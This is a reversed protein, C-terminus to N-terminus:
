WGRTTSRSWSAPTSSPRTSRTCPTPSPSCISRTPRTTAREHQRGEVNSPSIAPLFAEVCTRARGARGQPQRHRAAGAGARRLTVPGTCVFSRAAANPGQRVSPAYFEPFARVEQLRGVASRRARREARLREAARHRLDRLEAQEDRRRRDRGARARGARARGRGGGDARAARVGGAHPRGEARAQVLELLDPPRPLSGAHTTLIRDRSRQM